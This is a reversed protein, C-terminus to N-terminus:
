QQFVLVHPVEVLAVTEDGSQQLGDRQEEQAQNLGDKQQAM